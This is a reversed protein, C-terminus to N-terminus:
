SNQSNGEYILLSSDDISLYCSYLHAHSVKRLQPYRIFVSLLISESDALRRATIHSLASDVGELLASPVIEKEGKQKMNYTESSTIMGETNFKRGRNRETYSLEMGRSFIKNIDVDQTMRDIYLPDYPNMVQGDGDDNHGTYESQHERSMLQHNSKLFSKSYVPTSFSTAPKRVYDISEKVLKPVEQQLQEILFTNNGALQEICYQVLLAKYAGADSLSKIFKVANSLSVTKGALSCPDLNGLQNSMVDDIMWERWGIATSIIRDMISKVSQHGISEVSCCLDSADKISAPLNESAEFSGIRVDVSISIQSLTQLCMRRTADVGAKDKDFLLVIQMGEKGKMKGCDCISQIQQESISTGMIAVSNYIGANHLSIVDFYGEVLIAVGSDFISEKAVDLGFVTRSKVFTLTEPSNIYKSIGHSKSGELDLVRGGFAVVQGDKRRIPIMLRNRFRDYYNGYARDRHDRSIKVRVNDNPDNGSDGKRNSSTANVVLGALILDHMSFGEDVLVNLLSDQHTTSSPAFGIGYKISTAPSIGRAIIHGRAQGARAHSVLNHAYFEAARTLVQLFSCICM